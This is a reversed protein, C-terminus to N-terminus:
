ATEALFGKLFLRATREALETATVSGATDFWEEIGNLTGFLLFSYARLLDGKGRVHPNVESLLVTMAEALQRSYKNIRSREAKGLFKIDQMLVVHRHRMRPTRQVYFRIFQELRAEPPLAEANIKHFKAIVSECYDVLIALLLDEKKPFYYYTMSKSAGCKKAGDEMKTAPYGFRAFLGAAVDVIASRKDDYDDARVRPM